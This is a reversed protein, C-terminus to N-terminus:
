QCYRAIDAALEEVEQKRQAESVHIENGDDDYYAVRGKLISLQERAKQCPARMHEQRKRDMEAKEQKERKKRDAWSEQIHKYSDPDTHPYGGDVNHVDFTEQRAEVDDTPPTDSFHEKGNEDTWVYVQSAAISM